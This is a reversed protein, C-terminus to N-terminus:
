VANTEPYSTIFLNDGFQILFPIKQSAKKLLQSVEFIGRDRLTFMDKDTEQAQVFFSGLSIQSRGIKQEFVMKLENLSWYRTEFDKRERFGCKSQVYLSRLGFKNLMHIHSLGDPKLVYKIQTLSSKVDEKSFHQFVSYSYCYDFLNQHFPLCRSDAVLYKAEVGLQKAVRKAALIAELGPDIGIPICGIKSAAICWRGWNCGIDLLLKGQQLPIPFKPIPYRQLNGQLHRYLNSNTGGVINQVFPDVSFKQLQSEIKVTVKGSVIDWTRQAFGKHTPTKDKILM